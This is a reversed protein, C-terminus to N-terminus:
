VTIRGSSYGEGLESASAAILVFEDDIPYYTWIGRHGKRYGWELGDVGPGGIVLFERETDERLNEAVEIYWFQADEDYWGQEALPSGFYDACAYGRWKEPVDM